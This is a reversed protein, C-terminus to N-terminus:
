AVEKQLQIGATTLVWDGDKNRWLSFWNEKVATNFVTGWAKYKKSNGSYRQKFKQWALSVYEEPLSIKEAYTFVAHGEPIPKIGEAQCKTIWDDFSVEGSAVKKQRTEKPLNEKTHVLNTSDVQVSNTSDACQNPVPASDTCQVSSTSSAQQTDVPLDADEDHEATLPKAPLGLWKGSEKQIGVVCGYRGPHKTIVNMAALQGLTATVHSRAMNCVEGLQSASMDDKKKGYGYTKRIIALLVSLQRQTFGFGAIDELLENAIRTYGDELQPSSSM